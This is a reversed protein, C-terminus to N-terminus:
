KDFWSCKDGRGPPPPPQGPLWRWRRPNTLDSPGHYTLCASNWWGEEAQRDRKYATADHCQIEARLMYSVALYTQIEEYKAFQLSKNLLTIAEEVSGLTKRRVEACSSLGILPKGPKLGLRIKESILERYARQWTLAAAGYLAEPDNPDLTAALRYLKESELFRANKWSLRALNKLADKHAPDLELVKQYERVATSTHPECSEAPACMADSALALYYHGKISSPDLAVAQHLHELAKPYIAEEYCAVGQELEPKKHAIQFHLVTVLLGFVLITVYRPM